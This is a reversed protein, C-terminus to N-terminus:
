GALRSKGSGAPLAISPQGALLHRSPPSRVLTRRRKGAQQSRLWDYIAAIDYQAQDSLEVRFDM